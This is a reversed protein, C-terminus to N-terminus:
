LFLFIINYCKIFVLSAFDQKHALPAYASIIHWVPNLFNVYAFAFGCSGIHREGTSWRVWSALPGPM